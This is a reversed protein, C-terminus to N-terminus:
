KKRLREVEQKMKDSYQQPTIQGGLLASGSKCLVDWMGNPLYVRDFYPFVRISAYKDYYETFEHKATVGKLGPPLKTVNAFKAMNDPKAFYAVLKKAEELNKSDKSAGMTLREGGSFNPEDGAVMSPVPMFGIKLNPNVKHVEDAFSPGLLTFAVKGQAFLGSLDSYKATLVDKNMFGKKYMELFKEPLQNWKNWDMKNDLLAQAENQKPSILLSTAFYDFFQGIMWDDIGSFYFPTVEGKSESKLKEAAAMLEDFTKPVDINYKKLLDANYTLGDKAESLVLAHVKGSKDTVVDKITDTLQPVWPQDKLDALYTGYRIVAWGHTDFIDPMDNAAMKVKMINEYESGPFQLDVEVNPNEKIYDNAIQRYVEQVPKDATASYVTIRKKPGNAATATTAANEAPKVSEQTVSGSDSRQSCGTLAVSLSLASALIAGTLKKM